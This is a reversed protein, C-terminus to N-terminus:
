VQIIIMKQWICAMDFDNTIESSDFTPWSYGSFPFYYKMVKINRFLFIRSINSKTNKMELVSSTRLSILPRLYIPKFFTLKKHSVWYILPIYLIDLAYRLCIEPMDWTYRLYTEPMDWAYRVSIEFTYWAYIVWIEPLDWAYRLWIESIDWAINWLYKPFIEPM